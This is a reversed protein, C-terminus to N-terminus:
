LAEVKLVIKHIAEPKGDKAICPRHADEPFFILADGSSCVFSCFSGAKPNAYFEVDPKYPESVTLSGPDAGEMIETGSVIMQIDIYKKHAEFRCKEVPKSDYRQVIAYLSTGEIEHKGEPLAEWGGALVWNIAKDLLPSLGKYRGIHKVNTAIM